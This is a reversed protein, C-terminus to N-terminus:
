LKKPITHLLKELDETNMPKGFYFGQVVECNKKKLFDLQQQTEVGEALVEYNLSHSMDIIAQIIVEDSNDISPETCKDLAFSSLPM